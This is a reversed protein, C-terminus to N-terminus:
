SRWSGRREYGAMGGVTWLPWDAVGMKLVAGIDLSRADRMVGSRRFM